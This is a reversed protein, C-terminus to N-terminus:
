SYDPEVTMKRSGVKRQLALYQERIMPLDEKEYLDVGGPMNTWSPHYLQGVPLGHKDAVSVLYGYAERGLALLFKPRIIAIEEYLFAGACTDKTITPVADTKDELSQCKVLATMAARSFVSDHDAPVDLIISVWRIINAFYRSGSGENTGAFRSRAYEEYAFVRNRGNLPAFAARECETITGPNKSVMLLDVDRVDAPCYFSRGM